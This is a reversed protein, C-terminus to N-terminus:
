SDYYQGQQVQQMTAVFGAVERSQVTDLERLNRSLYYIRPRFGVVRTMCLRIM